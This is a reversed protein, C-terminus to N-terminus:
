IRRNLAVVAFEISDLEFDDGEANYLEFELYKASIGRGLDARQTRLEDKSSRTTYLYEKGSYLVKLFIRGTSAMGLYANTVSKLASTDFDQKGFGMMAQIPTGADTDGDLQYVGDSACGYYVGGLEAYSNFPYNEYRSSATTEANVVWVAPNQQSQQLSITNDNGLAYSYMLAQLALQQEWDTTAQALSRMEASTGVSFLFVSEAVADSRMVLFVKGPVLWDDTSRARSLIAAQDIAEFAAGSAFLPALTLEADAYLRATEAGVERAVGLMDMSLFSISSEAFRAEPAFGYAFAPVFGVAALSYDPIIEGISAGGSTSMAEFSLLAQASADTDAFALAGMPLFALAAKTLPDAYVAMPLFQVSGRGTTVTITGEASVTMPRFAVEGSAFAAVGGFAEMAEFSLEAFTVSPAFGETELPLFEALGDVFAADAGYARLPLFELSADARLPPAEASVRMAPFALAVGVEEAITPSDIFDGGTYLSADLFVTGRSPELSTYVVVGDVSYTVVGGTRRITYVAESPQLGIYHKEVGREYVKAVGRTVYIAHEMDLYGAGLNYDNLGVFVGTSTQPVKFTAYGNSDGNISRESRAGSNWGLNYDYVLEEKTAPLAAVPAIYPQPFVYTRVIFNGCVYKATATLLIDWAFLSYSVGNIIVYSSTQIDPVEYPSYWGCEYRSTYTYYGERYPQGPSGKSGSFAPTYTFRTQKILTNSM